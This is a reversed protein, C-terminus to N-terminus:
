DNENFKNSVIDRLADFDNKLNEIFKMISIMNENYIKRREQEIDILKELKLKLYIIKEENSTLEEFILLKEEEELDSSVISTSEESSLEENSLEKSSEIEKNKHYDELRTVLDTKRGKTSLGLEKLNSKLEQVKLKHYEM